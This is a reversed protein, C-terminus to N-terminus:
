GKSTGQDDKKRITRARLPGTKTTMMESLDLRLAVAIDIITFLGPEKVVNKEIQRVTGVSVGARRALELQSIKQM